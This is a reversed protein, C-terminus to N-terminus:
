AHAAYSRSADDRVVTEAGDRATQESWIHDATTRQGHVPMNDGENAIWHYVHDSSAWEIMM